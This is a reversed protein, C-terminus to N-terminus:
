ERGSASHLSRASRAHVDADGHHSELAGGLKGAPRVAFSWLYTLPNSDPDSSGAGNLQVTDGANVSQDPGADAVPEHQSGAPVCNSFESTDGSASTVTATVIVGAGIQFFPADRQRRM